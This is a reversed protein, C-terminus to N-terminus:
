NRLSWMCCPVQRLVSCIRCHRCLLVPQLFQLFRVSRSWLERCYVTSLLAHNIRERQVYRCPYSQVKRSIRYQSEWLCRSREWRRLRRTGPCYGAYVVGVAMGEPINHITVALVLMTTRQLKSHIGEAKESNRHLHPVISDVLLLFLIGIWFGVVAPVFSFKGMSASQEIAPLLLSWISAAVMVGAAFGTLARQLYDSMNKKMFFVCASGLSTGLFPVLIGIMVENMNLRWLHVLCM